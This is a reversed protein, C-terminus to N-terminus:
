GGTGGGNGANDTDNAPLSIMTVFPAAKPDKWIRIQVLAPRRGQDTWQDLWSNLRGDYYRIELEQVGKILPLWHTEQSGANLESVAVRQLGLEWINTTTNKQIQLTVQYTDNIAFQTFIPNGPNCLVQMEDQSLGNFQHAQGLLAGPDNQPIAALMAQMTRSFGRLQLTENQSQSSVTIATLNLELFRYIVLVTMAMIAVALMIELLTFAGKTKREKDKRRM